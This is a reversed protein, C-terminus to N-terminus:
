QAYICMKFTAKIGEVENGAEGYSAKITVVESFVNM